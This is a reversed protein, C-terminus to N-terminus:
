TRIKWGVRVDRGLHAAVAPQDISLAYLGEVVNSIRATNDADLQPNTVQALIKDKSIAVSDFGSQMIKDIAERNSQRTLFAQPFNPESTDIFFANDFIPDQTQVEAVISIRKFARDFGSEGRVKLFGLNAHEVWVSFELKKGRGLQTYRYSIEIDSFRARHTEGLEPITLGLHKIFAQMRDTDRKSIKISFFIITATLLIGFLVLGAILATEDPEIM